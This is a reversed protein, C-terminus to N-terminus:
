HSKRRNPQLSLIPFSKPSPFPYLLHFKGRFITALRALTCSIWSAKGVETAPRTGPALDRLMHIPYTFWIIPRYDNLPLGSSSNEYSPAYSLVLHVLGLQTLPCQAQQSWGKWRPYLHSRWRQVQSSNFQHTSNRTRCWKHRDFHRGNCCSVTTFDHFRKLQWYTWSQMHKDAAHLLDALPLPDTPCRHPMQPADTPDPDYQNVHRGTKVPVFVSNWALNSSIHKVENKNGRVAGFETMFGPM